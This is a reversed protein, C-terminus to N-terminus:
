ESYSQLEEETYEGGNEPKQDRLEKIKEPRIWKPAKSFANTAYTIIDSIDKDSLNANGNLGPMAQNIEYLKGNVHIPGALGHLIILGLKEPSNAVYESNMLPPAVGENGEGNVGHCAACIQRFIKAGNTRTDMASGTTTFIPNPRDKKQRELSQALRVGFDSSEFDPREKMRGLFAEATEGMGSLLAEEVIPNQRYTDYLAYVMPAFEEESVKAWTGLTTALYLDISRDNRAMLDRFFNEAERSNEKSVFDELLVIALATVDPSSKLAVTKVMDFSLADLGRLTYLAHVQALPSGKDRALKELEPIAEKKDKFILYHQARDRIWGNKNKLLEVLETGSANAFDPIPLADTDKNSIRLIRGYGTLTDLQKKKAEKKLYPSLFAYHQIVGRHMDVAYLSGDPGNSLDVPRFGEDTSALFEKGQWAQEASISDGYFTLLNRKILNGEPVCVFVNQNYGEPFTGGRYVLPSSAASVEILLSDQDLVGPAYGRNVSAAHLPYVRQDDTLLRNVGHKPDMNKNRVLRNPLVYDGLLQRANDNFYLRGFNDHTIGWQGRITTPQKRWKGNKRQYRYPLKANYIWNDINLMLGNPQYEPNDEPAYLSDVLTRKGPNDNEIEVFWLNPPEAYLLGGYVLALARPMVLSDLFVKAHDMVGDEDLDELIRISGTPESEGRGELNDMFGPMEAAWIRGKTDFDIAVPANLLPESAVMKLEFGEEVQYAKLSIHPEEFSPECGLLIGFLSACISFKVFYLRFEVVM